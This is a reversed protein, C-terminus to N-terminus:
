IKYINIILQDPLNPPYGILIMFGTALGFGLFFFFFLTFDMDTRLKDQPRALPHDTRCTQNPPDPKVPRQGGRTNPM